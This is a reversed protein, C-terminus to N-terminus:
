SLARAANLAASLRIWEDSQGIVSRRVKTSRLAVFTCAPM